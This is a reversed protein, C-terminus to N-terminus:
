EIIVSSLYGNFHLEAVTDDVCLLHKDGSLNTLALALCGGKFSGCSPTMLHYDGESFRSMDPYCPASVRQVRGNVDTETYALHNGDSYMEGVRFRESPLLISGAISEGRFSYPNELCFTVM